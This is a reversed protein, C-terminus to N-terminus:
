DGYEYATADPVNGAPSERLAEVPTMEPVAVAAGVVLATVTRMVSALPAVAVDDENVRVVLAVVQEGTVM